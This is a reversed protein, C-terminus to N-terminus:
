EMSHYAQLFRICSGCSRSEKRERACDVYALSIADYCVHLGVLVSSAREMRGDHHERDRSSVRKCDLFVRKGQVHRQIAAHIARRSYCRDSAPTVPVIGDQSLWRMLDLADFLRISTAFYQHLGKGACTGHKRWEHQWFCADPGPFLTLWKHEM